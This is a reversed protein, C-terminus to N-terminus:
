KYFEGHKESRGGRRQERIDCDEQKHKIILVPLIEPKTCHHLVNKEWTFKFPTLVNCHM